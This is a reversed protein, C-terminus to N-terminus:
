RCGLMAPPTIHRPPAHHSRDRPDRLELEAVFPGVTEVEEEQLLDHLEVFNDLQGLELRRLEFGRLEGAEVLRRLVGFLDDCALSRHGPEEHPVIASLSIFPTGHVRGVVDHPIATPTYTIQDQVPRWDLLTTGTIRAAFLRPGVATVRVSTGHVIPQFTSAAALEAPLGDTDATTAVVM